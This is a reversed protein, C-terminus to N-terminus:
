KENGHESTQEASPTLADCKKTKAHHKEQDKDKVRRAM